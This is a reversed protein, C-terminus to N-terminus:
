SSRASARALGVALAVAIATALGASLPAVTHPLIRFLGGAARRRCDGVPDLCDNGEGFNPSRPRSTHSGEIRGGIVASTVLRKRPPNGFGSCGNWDFGDGVFSFV